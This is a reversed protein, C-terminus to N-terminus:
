KCTHMDVTKTCVKCEVFCCWHFKCDCRERVVAKQTNYGRGCCLLNCGDLGQSTRNCQRGQTGLSGVSSNRNCYSPSEDMYVLDNPTPSNFRPDRTELRGLKNLRVETAGDYKDKLFDGIERFPALQKWCSMLTCSGSVGHCKCTVRAKWLVARRGARNNHVNMISRATKRVARRERSDVFERTFKYGYELNDSCGGWIWNSHLDRPRGHRSCGCSSLHGDHCARSIAHVVGAATIAYTFATERSAIKLMPGFVSHDKVTSCNWRSHRFQWQCEAIAMKAGRSVSTMHDQYMLCLKSQRKSLGSIQKCVPTATALHQPEPVQFVEAPQTGMHFWSAAIGKGECAYKPLLLLLLPLLVPRRLSGQCLPKLIDM